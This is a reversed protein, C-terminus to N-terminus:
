HSLYLDALSSMGKLVYLNVIIDMVIITLKAQLFFDSTFLLWVYELGEECVFVHIDYCSFLKTHVCLSILVRFM